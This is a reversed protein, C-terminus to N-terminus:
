RAAVQLVASVAVANETAPRLPAPAADRTIESAPIPKVNKLFAFVTPDLVLSRPDVLALIQEHQAAFQVPGEDRLPMPPQVPRTDEATFVTPEVGAVPGDRLVADGLLISVPSAGPPAINFKPQSTASAPPNAATVDFSTPIQPAIFHLAIALLVLGGVANGILRNVGTFNMTAISMALDEAFRNAILPCLSMAM